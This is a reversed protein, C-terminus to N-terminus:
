LMAEATKLDDRTTIKMNRYSGPVIKVRGGAMEVAGADDTVAPGRSRGASRYAKNILATRFAQPTQARFVRSRDLTRKVFLDKDVIKVTDSEPVAVICSGYRRAAAIADSITRTDVFPRGGDHILVIGCRPDIHALCNRVSDARTKGGAIVASVKRLGYGAVLRNLRGLYAAEGAVVIADIERSASLAKITRIILPTGALKIFPKRTKLGMRKGSGAAAVIAVVDGSVRPTVEEM